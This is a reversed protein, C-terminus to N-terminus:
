KRPVSSPEPFVIYNRGVFNFIFVLATAVIKSIQPSYGSLFFLKTIVLDLVGGSAVILLFLLTETASSWRVKHRFLLLICLYYNLIAAIVFATPAAMTISWDNSIMSIFLIYNVVAAMGGILAYFLVKIPLPAQYANYRIICYIARIGDKYGIKKGEEYTRGYYSIGMEYIRLKMHSIKAVIEPEVGFRNESIEIKQIVDRRFVKYCTEIDTLNLDTFINSLLTLFRNGLYHWFYLVRHAGYSLFRSGLVVDADNEILPKLLRKLDIPDYELDADQITIFDGNANKFGTRLAAGKGQNTNHCLVSIEQYKKALEHAITLSRDSSFDDVIIIELALNEDAIERVRGICTEITKEENFCPIIISLTISVSKQNPSNVM